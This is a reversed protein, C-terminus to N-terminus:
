FCTKLRRRLHSIYAAFFVVKTTKSVSKHRLSATNLPKRRAKPLTFIPPTFEGELCLLVTSTEWEALPQGQEAGFPNTQATLSSHSWASNNTNYVEGM